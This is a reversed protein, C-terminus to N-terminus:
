RKLSMPEIKRYTLTRWLWEAPGYRFRDLWLPSIILQVMWMGLVFALLAFRNIQGFLALGYGYFITTMIITHTLYNSLAMRGVAALRRKLGNLFKSRIILMILGVHGMVVLVGTLYDLSGGAMFFYPTDYAHRYNLIASYIVPPLGLIYGLATMWGYFKNSRAAAFIGLKMLAMGILM